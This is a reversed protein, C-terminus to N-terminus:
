LRVSVRSIKLPLHPSTPLPDTTFRMLTITAMRIAKCVNVISVSGWWLLEYVKNDDIKTTRNQPTAAPKEVGQAQQAPQEGQPSAALQPLLTTSAPAPPGSETAGAVIVSTIYAGLVLFKTM